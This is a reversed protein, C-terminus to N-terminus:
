SSSCQFVEEILEAVYASTDQPTLKGACRNVHAQYIKEELQELQASPKESPPNDQWFTKRGKELNNADLRLLTKSFEELAARFKPAPVSSQAPSSGASNGAGQTGTTQDIPHRSNNPQQPKTGQSILPNATQSTNKALEARQSRSIEDFEDEAYVGLIIRPEYVRTWERTGRYRLQRDRNHLWIAKANGQKDLTRWERFNGKIWRASSPSKGDDGLPSDSVIVSRDDGEGSLHYHLTIGLCSRLAAAIVKGEYIPKGQYSSVCQAVAFPDMKWTAAQNCVLFCNAFAAEATDGKLAEPILPSSAMVTAVRSVAEFRKLDFIGSPSFTTEDDLEPLAAGVSQEIPLNNTM